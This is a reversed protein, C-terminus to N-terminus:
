AAIRLSIGSPYSFVAADAGQEGARQRFDADCRPTHIDSRGTPFHFRPHRNGNRRAPELAQEWRWLTNPLFAKAAYFASVQGPHLSLEVRADMLDLENEDTGKLYCKFPKGRYQIEGDSRLTLDAGTLEYDEYHLYNGFYAKGEEKQLAVKYREDLQM